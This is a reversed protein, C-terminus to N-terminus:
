YSPELANVRIVQRVEEIYAEGRESYRTLGAALDLGSLDDGTNRASERIDRLPKYVPHTNINRFYAWIAEDVTEFSRVEHRAGQARRGPVMGCGEDFCWQGFLNNADKAFRSTGWGSELAAQALVMSVPIEDLRRQLQSVAQSDTLEEPVRYRKRMTLLFYTETYDLPLDHQLKLDVAGLLLRRERNVANRYQVAPRLYDFFLQKRERTEEITSFDPLQSYDRNFDPVVRIAGAQDVLTIGTLYEAQYAKYLQWPHPSNSEECGALVMLLLCLGVARCNRGAGSNWTKM